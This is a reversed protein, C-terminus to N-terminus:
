KCRSLSINSIYEDGTIKGDERLKDLKPIMFRLNENARKLMRLFESDLIKVDRIMVRDEVNVWRVLYYNPNQFKRNTLTVNLENSEKEQEFHCICLNYSPSIEDYILENLNKSSFYLDDLLYTYDNYINGVRLNELIGYNRMKEHM